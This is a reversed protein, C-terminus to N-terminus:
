KKLNMAGNEGTYVKTNSGPRKSFVEFTFLIQKSETITGLVRFGSWVVVEDLKLLKKLFILINKEEARRLWYEFTQNSNSFSKAFFTADYQQFQNSWISILKEDERFDFPFKFQRILMYSANGYLEFVESQYPVALIVLNKKM